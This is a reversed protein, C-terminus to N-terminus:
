RVAAVAVKPAAAAAESRRQHPDTSQWWLRLGLFVSFVVFIDSPVRVRPVGCEVLVSIAMTYLIVVVGMAYAFLAPQGSPSMGAPGGRRRNVHSSLGFSALLVLQAAFALVVVFHLLSWLLQLPRSGFSALPTVYPFWYSATARTVEGVYELPASVILRLNLRMVYRSLEGLSMGTENM